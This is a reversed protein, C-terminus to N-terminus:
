PVEEGREAGGTWFCAGFAGGGAIGRGVSTGRFDVCHIVSFGIGGPNTAGSTGSCSGGVRRPMKAARSASNAADGLNGAVGCARGSAVGSAGRSGRWRRVYECAGRSGPKAESPVEALSLEEAAPNGGRSRDGDGAGAGSGGTRPM